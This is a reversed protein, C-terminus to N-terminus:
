TVFPTPQRSVVPAISQEKSVLYNSDNFLFDFSECDILPDNKGPEFDVVEAVESYTHELHPALEHRYSSM